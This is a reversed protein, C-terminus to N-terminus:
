AGGGHYNVSWLFFLDGAELMHGFLQDVWTFSLNYMLSGAWYSKRESGCNM